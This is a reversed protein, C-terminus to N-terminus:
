RSHGMYQAKHFTVMYFCGPHKGEQLSRIETLLYVHILYGWLFALVTYLSSSPTTGQFCTGHILTVRPLLTSYAAPFFLKVKNVKVKPASIQLGLLQENALLLSSPIPHIFVRILSSQLQLFLSSVLYAKLTM